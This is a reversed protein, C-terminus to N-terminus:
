PKNSFLRIPICPRVLGLSKSQAAAKDARQRV